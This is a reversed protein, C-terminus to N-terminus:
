NIYSHYEKLAYRDSMGAIFDCIVIAKEKDDLLPINVRWSTPLCDIDSIYIEFLGKVCRKGKMTMKKVLYHTYLNKMLFKKIKQHYIEMEPSFEVIKRGSEYIDSLSKIQLDLLNNKTNNIVDKIMKFRMIRITEYILQNDRIEKNKSILDEIILNLEEIECIDNLTLIGSRFGDDIDHNNYAIDDSIAAVQAELSPYKNLLLDQKNNYESIISSPNKIPGNHKVLGELFEWSLNLGQHNVSLKELKTLLKLSHSNHDFTLDFEKMLEKLADEGAHGFPAHGIDHALSINEALDSCLNLSRSIIRAIHSAELSHTLRSRDHDGNSSIFVQTKHELRRFARSEIIRNRDLEFASLLGDEEKFLRGQSKTPCCAFNALM